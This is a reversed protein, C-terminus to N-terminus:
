SCTLPTEVATGVFEAFRQHRQCIAVEIRGLVTVGGSLDSVSM